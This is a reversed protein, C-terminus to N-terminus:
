DAADAADEPDEGDDRSPVPVISVSEKGQDDEIGGGVIGLKPCCIDGTTCEVWSRRTADDAPRNDAGAGARPWTSGAIEDEDGSRSRSGLFSSRLAHIVLWENERV